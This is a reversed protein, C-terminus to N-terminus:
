IEQPASNAAYDNDKFEELMQPNNRTIESLRDTVLAKQWRPERYLWYRPQVRERRAQYDNTTWRWNEADGMGGYCPHDLMAMAIKRWHRPYHKRPNFMGATFRATIVETEEDGYRNRKIEGKEDRVPVDLIIVQSSHLSNVFVVEEQGILEPYYRELLQKFAPDDLEFAGNKIASANQPSVQDTSVRRPLEVTNVALDQYSIEGHTQADNIMASHAVSTTPYEVQMEEASLMPAFFKDGLASGLSASEGVNPSQESSESASDSPAYDPIQEETFPDTAVQSPENSNNKKSM